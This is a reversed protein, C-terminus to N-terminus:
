PNNFTSSLKNKIPPYQTITSRSQRKKGHLFLNVDSTQIDIPDIYRNKAIKSNHDNLDLNYM